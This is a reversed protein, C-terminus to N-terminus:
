TCCRYLVYTGSSPSPRTIRVLQGPKLALYRAMPEGSLILPLQFKSKLRYRKVVEEIRAEDRIPEHKPVLSHRSVNYMLERVQFLQVDRALEDVGKGQAPRERVVVVVQTNTPEGVEGASLLLKKVDAMKFKHNLNYVIRTACSPVDVHFVNKTAALAVVDADSVRDLSSTDLGRDALMERVVSFSRAVEADITLQLVM